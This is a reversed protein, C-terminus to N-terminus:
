PEYKYPTLAQRLQDRFNDTTTFQGRILEDIRKKFALMQTYHEPDWSNPPWAFEPDVVFCLRPIDREAAHDFEIETVSIPYGREIYGYRHAFIGVYLDALDLKKKSGATAGLGMAEFHEMMIPVLELTMCVDRAAERYARLDLGTSGIFVTKFVKKEIPGPGNPGNPSVPAAEITLGFVQGPSLKRELLEMVYRWSVFEVDAKAKERWIRPMTKELSLSPTQVKEAFIRVKRNAFADRMEDMAGVNAGDNAIWDEVQLLVVADTASKLLSFHRELRRGNADAYPDEAIDDQLLLGSSRAIEQLEARLKGRIRTDRLAARPDLRLDPTIARGIRTLKAVAESDAEGAPLSRIPDDNDPPDSM